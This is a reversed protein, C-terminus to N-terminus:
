PSSARPARPPIFYRKSPRERTQAGAGPRRQTQLLKSLLLRVHYPRADIFARRGSSGFADNLHVPASDPDLRLRTLAGRKGERERDDNLPLHLRCSSTCEWRWNSRHVEDPIPGDGVLHSTRSRTTILRFASRVRVDGSHRDQDMVSM